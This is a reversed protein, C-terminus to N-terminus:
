RNYEGCAKIQNQKSTYCGPCMKFLETQYIGNTKLM